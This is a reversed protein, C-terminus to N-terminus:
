TIHAIKDRMNMIQLEVNTRRLDITDGIIKIAETSSISIDYEPLNNEQFKQLM